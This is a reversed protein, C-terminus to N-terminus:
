KLKMEIEYAGAHLVLRGSQKLKKCRRGNVKIQKGLFPAVFRAKADFPIVIQFLIGQETWKWNVQYTGAASEYTCTAGRMKQEPKPALIVRKLGSGTATPKLGCVVSYLWNELIGYVWDPEEKQLTMESSELEKKVQELLQKHLKKPALKWYLILIKDTLSQVYSLDSEQLYAEGFAQKVERALKKYYAAAEQIELIKAAKATCLVSAYYVATSVLGQNSSGCLAQEVMPIDEVYKQMQAYQEALQIEDGYLLYDKWASLAFAYSHLAEPFKPFRMDGQQKEDQIQKEKQGSFSELIVTEWTNETAIVIERGLSNEMHLEGLVDGKQLLLFNEKGKELFSTVNYVMYFIPEEERDASVSYGNTMKKKNVFFDSNGRSCLYFRASVLDKPVFFKKQIATEVKLWEGQWAEQEKGTEFWSIPSSISEGKETRVQVKWFYRTRPSLQVNPCFATSRIEQQWGSDYVERKMELDLFIRMRAQKQRKGWCGETIWSFVPYSCACGLPQKQHNVRMERIRMNIIGRKGM